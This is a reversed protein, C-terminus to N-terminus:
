FSFFITGAIRSAENRLALRSNTEKKKKNKGFRHRLYRINRLNHCCTPFCPCIKTTSFQPFKLAESINHEEHRWIRWLPMFVLCMASIFQEQIRFISVLFQQLCVVDVIKRLKIETIVSPIENWKMKDKVRTKAMPIEIKENAFKLLSKPVNIKAVTEGIVTAKKKQLNVTRM